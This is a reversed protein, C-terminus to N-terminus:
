QLKSLNSVLENEYFDSVFHTQISPVHFVGSLSLAPFSLWIIDQSQSTDFGPSRQLSGPGPLDWCQWCSSTLHYGTGQLLISPEWGLVSPLLCHPHIEPTLGFILTKQSFVFRSVDTPSVAAKIADQEIAVARRPTWRSRGQKGEEGPPLPACCPSSLCQFTSPRGPFCLGAAQPPSSGAPLHSVFCPLALSCAHLLLPRAPVPCSLGPCLSLIHWLVQEEMGVARLAQRGRHSLALNISRGRAFSSVRIDAPCSSAILASTTLPVDGLGRCCTPCLPSWGPDETGGRAQFFCSCGLSHQIRVAGWALQHM